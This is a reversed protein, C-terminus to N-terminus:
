IVTKRCNGDNEKCRLFFILKYPVDSLKIDLM